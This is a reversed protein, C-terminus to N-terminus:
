LGVLTAEEVGFVLETAVVEEMEEAGTFGVVLLAAEDVGLVLLTADEVLFDDTEDV